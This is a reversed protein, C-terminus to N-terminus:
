LVVSVLGDHTVNVYARQEDDTRCHEDAPGGGPRDGARQDGQQDYEELRVERQGPEEEDCEHRAQEAGSERRGCNLVNGMADFGPRALRSRQNLRERLREPMQEHGRCDERDTVAGIREQNEPRLFQPQAERLDDQGEGKVVGNVGERGQRQPFEGVRHAALLHDATNM